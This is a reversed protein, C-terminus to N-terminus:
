ASVLAKLDAFKSDGIGSVNQLQGVSTFGGHATRWDIIHQALVPGVGPLADLQAATATNLDLLGTASGGGGVGGAGVGGAPKPAGGGGPVGVVVEDGDHLPAALNLSVTSVGRQVGGAARVADDVRATAPLHYVGPHVVKGAVDVVIETPASSTSPGVAPAPSTVPPASSGLTTEAGTAAVPVAPSRSTMYWWLTIAVALLVVSAVAILTARSPEWRGRDPLDVEPRRHSGGAAPREGVLERVRAAVKAQEGRSPGGM